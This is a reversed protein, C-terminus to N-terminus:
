NWQGAIEEVTMAPVRAISLQAEPHVEVLTVDLEFYAESSWLPHQM